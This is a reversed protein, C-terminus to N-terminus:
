RELVNRGRRVLNKASSAASALLGRLNLPGRRRSAGELFDDEDPTWDWRSARLYRDGFTTDAELYAGEAWENWANIFVIGESGRAAGESQRAASLWAGYRAPTSGVFITAASRRRATNDWRPVLGRHLPFNPQRRTEYHRALKAYSNVRGRFDRSTGEPRRGVTTSLNSDGVPPFEAVADFGYRSPSIGAFTESAVLWLEGLGRDRAMARWTDACRKTDPIQDVRHVLIVLKGGLRLYRSDELYPLFSTFVSEATAQGYDQALLLERDKGDWRRSWNENAWCIAFPMSHNSKLYDDLPRELLRRGAFWYHYYIFADIGNETADKVQRAITSPDTLDYEGVRSAPSVPHRHGKFQPTARRVNTWETFGEGWWEDNEPIQHFQPLYFAATM